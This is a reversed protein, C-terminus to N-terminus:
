MKMLKANWQKDGASLKLLYLGKALGETNLTYSATGSVHRIIENRVVRGQADTLLMRYSGSAINALRLQTENGAPIPYLSLAGTQMEEAAVGVATLACSNGKQVQGRIEGGANAATHLNIYLEGKHLAAVHISDLRGATTDMSSWVGEGYNGAFSNHIDKVVNGAQGKLGLHFHAATIAGSLKTAQVKYTLAPVIREQAVIGTGFGDSTNTNTEQGACLDFLFGDKQYPTIQARAEGNPFAKNVINLYLNGTLIGRKLLSDVMSGRM